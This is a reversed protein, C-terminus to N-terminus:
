KKGKLKITVEQLDIIDDHDIASEIEDHLFMCLGIRAIIYDIGGVIQCTVTPVPGRLARLGAGGAIQGGAGHRNEAAHVLDRDRGGGLFLQRM